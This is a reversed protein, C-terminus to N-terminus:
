PLDVAILMEISPSIHVRGSLTTVTFECLMLAAVTVDPPLRQYGVIATVVDVVIGAKDDVRVTGSVKEIMRFVVSAGLLGPFPKGEDLMQYQLLGLTDGVKM